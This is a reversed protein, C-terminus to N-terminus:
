SRTLRACSYVAESLWHWNCVDFWVNRYGTGSFSSGTGYEEPLVKVLSRVQGTGSRSDYHMRLVAGYEDNPRIDVAYPSTVEIGYYGDGTSWYTYSVNGYAAGNTTYASFLSAATAATEAQAASSTTPIAALTATLGAALMIKTLRASFSM